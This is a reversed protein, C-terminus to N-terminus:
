TKYIYLIFFRCGTYCLANVNAVLINVDIEYYLEYYNKRNQILLM